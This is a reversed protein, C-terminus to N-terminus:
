GTVRRRPLLRGRPPVLPFDGGHTLVATRHELHISTRLAVSPQDVWESNPLHVLSIVDSSLLESGEAEAAAEEVAVETEVAAALGAVASGVVAQDPDPLRRTIAELIWTLIEALNEIGPPIAGSWTGLLLATYWPANQGQVSAYYPLMLMEVAGDTWFASDPMNTPSEGIATLEKSGTEGSPLTYALTVVVPPRVRVPPSYATFLPPGDGESSLVPDLGGDVDVAYLYVHRGRLGSVYEAAERAGVNDIPTAVTSEPVTELAMSLPGAGPAASARAPPLGALFERLPTVVLSGTGLQFSVVSLTDWLQVPTAAPQSPYTFALACAPNSEDYNYWVQHIAQLVQLAHPGGASVYYPLLFKEVASESWFLASYDGGGLEVQAGYEVLTVTASEVTPRSAASPPTSIPIPASVPVLPLPTGGTPPAVMEIEGPAYDFWVTQGRISTALDAGVRLAFYGPIQPLPNTM